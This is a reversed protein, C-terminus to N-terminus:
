WHEKTSVNMREINIGKITALYKLLYILKRICPTPLMTCHLTECFTAQQDQLTLVIKMM